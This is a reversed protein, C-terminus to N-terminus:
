LPLLLLDEIREEDGWSALLEDPDAMAVVGGGARDILHLAYGRECFWGLYEEAPTGSIVSLMSRSLETIVVPRHREILQHAGALVRGEAGEVDLKVLDVPEDLLEDLPFTPVVFGKGSTLERAGAAMFGGNTGTHSTFCAWGRRSDLAIPLVEVNDVENVALSVLLLRCDEPNAEVAIVRGQAGVARAALLTYFGINAGIDVVTAGPRCHRVFVPELHTEYGSPHVLHGSVSADARDVLMRIGSVEIEGIDAPGFRVMVPSPAVQREVRSLLARLAPLGTVRDGAVIERALDPLRADRPQPYVLELVGSLPLGPGPPEVDLEPVLGGLRRIM